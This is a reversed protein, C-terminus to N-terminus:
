AKDVELVNYRAGVGNFDTYGVEILYNVNAKKDKKRQYTEARIERAENETVNDREMIRQVNDSMTFSEENCIPKVNKLGGFLWLELAPFSKKGHDFVMEYQTMKAHNSKYYLDIRSVNFSMKAIPLPLGNGFPKLKKIEEVFALREKRNHIQVYTKEIVKGQEQKEVSECFEQKFEELNEDLVTLGAADAHGGYAYLLHKRDDIDQLTDYLNILSNGRASGKWAKQGDVMCDTMVLTTKKNENMYAGALIGIIGEHIGEQAIFNVSTSEDLHIREMTQKKIDKREENLFVIFSCARRADEKNDTTLFDVALKADHLRGVANIAPAISFGISQEDFTEQNVEQYDMLMKLHWDPETQISKIGDKLWKRNENVQSLADDASAIPMVDSVITLASLQLLYKRLNDKKKKLAKSNDLLLSAVKYAVQAGSIYPFPYAGIQPHVILNANPLVSSPTHHDTVYVYLGNERAYDIVEHCGIGNDCTLVAKINDDLAKDIMEKCLGYGNRIRHPIDYDVRAHIFTLALYLISTAGVGDMDYDGMIRIKENNKIHTQLAECLEVCNDLLKPSHLECPNYLTQISKQSFGLHTLWEDMQVNDVLGSTKDLEKWNM